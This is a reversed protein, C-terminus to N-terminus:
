PERKCGLASAATSAVAPAAAVVAAGLTQRHDLGQSAMSKPLQTLTALSPLPQKAQEVAKLFVDYLHRAEDASSRVKSPLKVKKGKATVAFKAPEATKKAATTNTKSKSPAPKVTKKEVPKKAM